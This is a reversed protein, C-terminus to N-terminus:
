FFSKIADVMDKGVVEWAGEFFGVSFGDPGPAKSSNLSWFVEKIEEETVPCGLRNSQSESVKVRVLECLREKGNYEDDHPTGLVSMYHTVFADCTEDMNQTKEGNPLVISHIRGRNSNKNISKFFFNSNKDGLELWQVRSKKDLM